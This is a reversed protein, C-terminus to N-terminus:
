RCPECLETLNERRRKEYAADQQELFDAKSIHRGHFAEFPTAGNLSIHPRKRNYDEIIWTLGDRLAHIDCYDKKFLYRYKILKNQAEVVSNSFQIDKQAILKEVSVGDTSLFGDITKNNNEVGGDVILQISERNTKSILAYAHQITQLRYFASVKTEIRWNLIFRSYNDMILYLFNKKGDLTKVITIDAHWIQNPAQARIGEKYTKKSPIFPRNLGLKRIYHYWTSLSITLINERLAYWAISCVPWYRYQDEALLKKM